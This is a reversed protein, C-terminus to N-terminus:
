SEPVPSCAPYRHEQPSPYRSSPVVQAGLSQPPRISSNPVHSPWGENPCSYSSLQVPENENMEWLKSCFFVSVQGSFPCHGDERGLHTLVHCSAASACTAVNRKQNETLQATRQTRQAASAAPRVMPRVLMEVKSMRSSIAVRSSSQSVSSAFSRSRLSLCAAARTAGSRRLWWRRSTVSSSSFEKAFSARGRKRSWTTGAWYAKRSETVQTSKKPSIRGDAFNVPGSCSEIAALM